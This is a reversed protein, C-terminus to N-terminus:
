KPQLLVRTPNKFIQRIVRRLDDSKVSEILAPYKPDFEAGKGLLEWWGLYWAQSGMSQHAALYDGILAQQKAAIDEQSLERTRRNILFGM